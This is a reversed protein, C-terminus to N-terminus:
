STRPPRVQDPAAGTGCLAQRLARVMEEPPFPKVLLRETADLAGHPEMSEPCGTMFLVPASPHMQHFDAALALGDLRGPMQVDTVLADFGDAGHLMPRAQDANGAETVDWGAEALAEALSLRILFEDDVLLIRRNQL